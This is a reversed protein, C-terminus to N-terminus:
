QPVLGSQLIVEGQMRNKNCSTYQAKIVKKRLIRRLREPNSEKWKMTVAQLSELFDISDDASSPPAFLDGSGMKGVRNRHVTEFVEHQSEDIDPPAIEATENEEQSSAEKVKARAKLEAELQSIKAELFRSASDRTAFAAEEEEKAQSM